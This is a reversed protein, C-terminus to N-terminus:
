LLRAELPKLTELVLRGIEKLDPRYYHRAFVSPPIRGQLLDVAESPIKKRLESAWAKRAEKLMLKIGAKELKRRFTVYSIPKEYEEIAHKLKEGIFSIYVNKTKRIFIDPFRFHELASLEPNYYGELGHSAIELSRFAEGARLGTLATFVAPFYYKWGLPKIKELWNAIEEFGIRSALMEKFVAESSTCNYKVEYQNKFARFLAPRGLYISLAKLSNAILRRQNENEM